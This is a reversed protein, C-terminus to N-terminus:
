SFTAVTYPIECDGGTGYASIVICFEKKARITFVEEYADPTCTLTVIRPDGFAIWNGWKNVVFVQISIATGCEEAYANSMSLRVKNHSKGSAQFAYTNTSESSPSLTITGGRPYHATDPSPLAYAGVALSVIIMVMVLTISIKKM